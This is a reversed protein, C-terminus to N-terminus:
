SCNSDDIKVAAADTTLSSIGEEVAARYWASGVIRARPPCDGDFFGNWPSVIDERKEYRKFCALCLPLSAEGDDVPVRMHM